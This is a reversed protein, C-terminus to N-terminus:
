RHKASPPSLARDGFWWVTATTASFFISEVCYRVLEQVYAPLQEAWGIFDPEVIRRFVWVALLWLALTLFPRFLSRVNNVWTAVHQPPVESRYSAVLGEWSGKSQQIKLENETERDGREMQLQQLKLEQEFEQARALREQRAQWLKFGAGVVSGVLGLLGGSAVSAGLGLLSTWDM